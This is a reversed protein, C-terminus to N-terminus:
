HKSAAYYIGLYNRYYLKELVTAPLDLGRAQGGWWFTPAVQNTEFYMLERAYGGVASDVEHQALDSTFGLDTGFLIKDQHDIFFKRVLDRNLRSLNLTRASHDVYLNPYTNLLTGLRALGQEAIAVHEEPTGLSDSQKWPVAADVFSLMHAAQFITKPHAKVVRLFAEIRPDASQEYDADVHFLVPWKYAACRDWVAKLRLDDVEYNGSFAAFTKFGGAGKAKYAAMKALMAPVNELDVIDNINVTMVDPAPYWSRERTLNDNGGGNTNPVGNPADRNPIADNASYIGVGSKIGVWNSDFTNHTHSDCIPYTRGDGNPHLQAMFSAPPPPLKRYAAIAPAPNWYRLAAVKAAQESSASVASDSSCGATTVAASAVVLYLLSSGLLRKLARKMM